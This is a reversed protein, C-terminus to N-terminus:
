RPRESGRSNETEGVHRIKGHREHWFVSPCSGKNGKLYIMMIFGFVSFHSPKYPSM